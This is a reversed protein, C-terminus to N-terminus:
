RGWWSVAPILGATYHTHHVGWMLTTQDGVVAALACALLADYRLRGIALVELAFVAGALPTGFVSAFGAAIGAM